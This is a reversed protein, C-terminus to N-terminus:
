LVRAETSVVSWDVASEPVPEVSLCERCEQGNNCFFARELTVEYTRYAYRPDTMIATLAETLTPYTRIGHVIRSGTRLWGNLLHNEKGECNPHRESYLVGFGLIPLPM